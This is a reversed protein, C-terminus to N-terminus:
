MVPRLGCRRSKSSSGFGASKPQATLILRASRGLGVGLRELREAFVCDRWESGGVWGEFPGPHRWRSEVEAAAPRYWVFNFRRHGRAMAEGRGAVPYGLMQEGEPLSFAFHDCLADRTPPSLDAENIFDDLLRDLNDRWGDSDGFDDSGALECAQEILKDADLRAEIVSTM